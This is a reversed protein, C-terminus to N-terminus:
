VAKRLILNFVSKTMENKMPSAQREELMPGEMGILELVENHYRCVHTM